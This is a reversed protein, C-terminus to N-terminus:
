QLTLVADRRIDVTGCIVPGTEASTFPEAEVVGYGAKVFTLKLSQAGVTKSETYAFTGDTVTTAITQNGLMVQVDSLPTFNTDTVIGFIHLAEPCNGCSTSLISLVSIVCISKLVSAIYKM